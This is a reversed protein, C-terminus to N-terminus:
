HNFFDVNGNKSEFNSILFIKNQLLIFYIFHLFFRYLSLYKWRRTKLIPINSKESIESHKHTKLSSQKHKQNETCEFQNIQVYQISSKQLRTVIAHRNTHTGLFGTHVVHNLMLPQIPVKFIKASFTRTCGIFLIETKKKKSFFTWFGIPLLWFGYGASIDKWFIAQDRQKENNIENLCVNNSQRACKLLIWVEVSITRLFNSFM